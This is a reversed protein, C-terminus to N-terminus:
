LVLLIIPRNESIITNKNGFSYKLQPIIILYKYYSSGEIYMIISMICVKSKFGSDGSEWEPPRPVLTTLIDSAKCNWVM